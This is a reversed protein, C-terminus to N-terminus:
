RRGHVPGHEVLTLRSGGPHRLELASEGACGPPVPRPQVADIGAQELKSVVTALSAVQVAPVWGAEASGRDGEGPIPRLAAVILSPQVSSALLLVGGEAERFTADLRREMWRRAGDVDPTWLEAFCLANPLAWRGLRPGPSRPRLLQDGAPDAARPPRPPSLRVTWRDPRGDVGEPLPDSPTRPRIGCIPGALRAHDLYVTADTTGLDQSAKWGLASAFVASVGAVDSTILEAWVLPASIPPPPPQM